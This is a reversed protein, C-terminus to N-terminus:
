VNAHTIEKEVNDSDQLGEHKQNFVLLTKFHELRVLLASAYEILTDMDGHSYQVRKGLVQLATNISIRTENIFEDSTLGSGRPYLIEGHTLNGNLYAQLNSELEKLNAIALVMDEIDPM